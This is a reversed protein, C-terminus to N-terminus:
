DTAKAFGGAAICNTLTSAYGSLRVGPTHQSLFPKRGSHREQTHGCRVCREQPVTKATTTELNEHM